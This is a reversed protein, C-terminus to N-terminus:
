RKTLNSGKKIGKNKPKLSNTNMVAASMTQPLNSATSIQRNNPFPFFFPFIYSHCRVRSLGHRPPRPSTSQTENRAADIRWSSIGSCVPNDIHPAPESWRWPYALLLRHAGPSVVPQHTTNHTSSKDGLPTPHVPEWGTKQGRSFASSAGEWKRLWSLDNGVM